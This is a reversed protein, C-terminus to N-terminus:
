ISIPMDTPALARQQPHSVKIYPTFSPLDPAAPLRPVPQAEAVRCPGVSTLSVAVSGLPSFWPILHPWSGLFALPYRPVLGGPLVSGSARRCLAHPFRPTCAGPGLYVAPFSSCEKRRVEGSTKFQLQTLRGHSEGYTDVM